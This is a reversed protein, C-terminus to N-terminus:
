LTLVNLNSLEFTVQGLYMTLYIHMDESNWDLVKSNYKINKWVTKYSM